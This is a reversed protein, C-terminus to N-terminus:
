SRTKSSWAGNTALPLGYMQSAGRETEAETTEIKGPYTQECIEIPGKVRPSCDAIDALFSRLLKTDEHLATVLAHTVRNEAQSYQDFINRMEAYAPYKEALQAFHKSFAKAFQRNLRDSLPPM